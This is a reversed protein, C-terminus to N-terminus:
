FVFTGCCEPHLYQPVFGKSYRKLIQRAMSACLAYSIM